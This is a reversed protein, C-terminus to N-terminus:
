AMVCCKRLRARSNQVNWFAFLLLFKKCLKLDKKAGKASIALGSLIFHVKKVQYLTCVALNIYVRTSLTWCKNVCM